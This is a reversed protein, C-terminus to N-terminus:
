KVHLYRMINIEYQITDKSKDTESTLIFKMYVNYSHKCASKKYSFIKKFFNRVKVKIFPITTTAFIYVYM